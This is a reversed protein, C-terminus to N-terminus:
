DADTGKARHRAYEVDIMGGGEPAVSLKECPYRHCFRTMRGPTFGDDYRVAGWVYLWGSRKPVAIARTGTPRKARPGIVGEGDFEGLPFADRDLSSSPDHKIDVFM